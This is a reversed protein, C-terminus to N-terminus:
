FFKGCSLPKRHKSIRLALNGNSTTDTFIKMKAEHSSVHTPKPQFAHTDKRNTNHHTLNTQRHTRPLPNTRDIINFSPSPRPETRAPDRTRPLTKQFSVPEGTHAAKKKLSKQSFPLQPTKSVTWWNSVLDTLHSCSQVKSSCPEESSTHPLM